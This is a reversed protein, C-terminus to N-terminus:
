RQGGKGYRAKPCSQGGQSSRQPVGYADNTELISAKGVSEAWFRVHGLRNKITGTSLEEDKWRNLLAHVHKPKIAKPTTMKYGMERLQRSMLYINRERAKQTGYSGQPSHRLLTKLKYDMAHM